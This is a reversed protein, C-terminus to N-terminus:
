VLIALYEEYNQQLRNWRTGLRFMCLMYAPQVMKFPFPSHARHTM